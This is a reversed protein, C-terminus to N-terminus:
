TQNGWSQLIGAAFREGFAERRSVGPVGSLMDAIAENLDTTKRGYSNNYSALRATDIIKFREL